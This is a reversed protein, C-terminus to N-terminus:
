TKTESPPNKSCPPPSSSLMRLWSAKRRTSRARRLSAADIRSPRSQRGSRARALRTPKRDAPRLRLVAASGTQLRTPHSADPPPSEARGDGTAPFLHLRAQAKRQVCSIRPQCAGPSRRLEPESRPPRPRRRLESGRPLRRASTNRVPPPTRVRSCPAPIKHSCRSRSCAHRQGRRGGARSHAQELSLSPAPQTVHCLSARHVQSAAAPVAHRSAAELSQPWSAAVTPPEPHTGRRRQHAHKIATGPLMRNQRPNTRTPSGLGLSAQVTSCTRALCTHIQRHCDLRGTCPQKPGPQRSSAGPDPEARTSIHSLSLCQTRAARPAGARGHMQIPQGGHAQTAPRLIRKSTQLRPQFADCPKHAARAALAAAPPKARGSPMLANRHSRHTPVANRSAAGLSQPGRLLLSARPAHRATSSAGHQHAAPGNPCM